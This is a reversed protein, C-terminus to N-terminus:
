QQLITDMDVHRNRDINKEKAKKMMEQLTEVSDLVATEFTGANKKVFHDNGPVELRIECFKNAPNGDSGVYLTVDARIIKDSKLKTLTERVYNELDNSAKFGPSEIIIDM